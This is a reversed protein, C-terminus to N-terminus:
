KVEVEKKESIEYLVMAYHKEIGHGCFIATYSVSIPRFEPHKEIWKNISSRLGVPHIEDFLEVKQQAM